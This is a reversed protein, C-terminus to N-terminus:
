QRLRFAKTRSAVTLITGYPWNVDSLPYRRDRWPRMRLAAEEVSFACLRGRAAFPAAAGHPSVPGGVAGVVVSSM